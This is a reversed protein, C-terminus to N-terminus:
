PRDEQSRTRVSLQDELRTIKRASLWFFTALLAVLWIIGTITGRGSWYWDMWNHFFFVNLWPSHAHRGEIDVITMAMKLHFSRALHDADPLCAWAGGLLALLPGIRYWRRRLPGVVVTIVTTCTAGVAFHLAPEAM